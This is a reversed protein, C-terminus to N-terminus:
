LRLRGTHLYIQQQGIKISAAAALHRREYLSACDTPFESATAVSPEPTPLEVSRHDRQVSFTVTSRTPAPKAICCAPGMSSVLTLEGQTECPRGNPCCESQTQFACAVATPTIGALSLLLVCLIAFRRLM